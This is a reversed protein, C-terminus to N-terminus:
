KLLGVTIADGKAISNADQLGKVRGVAHMPGVDEIVVQCLKKGDKLLWVMDGKALKQGAGLIFGISNEAPTYVVVRSAFTAEIGDLPQPPKPPEAPAVPPGIRVPGKAEWWTRWKAADEGFDQGTIAKLAEACRGRVPAMVHSLNEILRPVASVEKMRSLSQAAVVRVLWDPDDLAEVLAPAAVKAELEGLKKAADAREHQASKPNRLVDVLKVVEPDVGAPLVGKRLQDIREDVQKTIDTIMYDRTREYVAIGEDRRGEAILKEARTRESEFKALAMTLIRRKEKERKVQWDPARYEPRSNWVAIAEGFKLEQVLEDAKKRLLEYDREMRKALEEEGAQPPAPKAPAQGEVGKVIDKVVDLAQDAGKEPSMAVAPRKALEAVAKELEVLRKEMAELKEPEPKAEIAKRLADVKGELFDRTALQEFPVPPTFKEIKEIVTPEPPPPAWPGSSSVYAALVIAGAVIGGMVVAGILFAAFRGTRGMAKQAAATLPAGCHGCVTSGAGVIGSCEPCVKLATRQEGARAATIGARNRAVLEAGCKRCLLEKGDFLPTEYAGCKKCKMAEVRAKASLCQPCFIKGAFQRASGDSMEELLVVRGCSACFLESLVDPV